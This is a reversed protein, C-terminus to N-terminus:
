FPGEAACTANVATVEYYWVQGMPPATGTTDVWQKNPTAADMDVINTGLLPWTAKPLAANSSRRVHYGTVQFTQNPDQFDLVTYNNVTLRVGYIFVPEDPAVCPGIRLMGASWSIGDVAQYPPGTAITQGTFPDADSDLTDDTGQNPLTYQYGSPLSFAIRHPAADLIEFRYAGQNDSFTATVTAGGSTQLYVPLRALPAEGADRLGDGDLDEWIQGGLFASLTVDNEAAGNLPMSFWRSAPVFPSVSPRYLLRVRWHYDGPELSSVAENLVHDAGEGHTFAASKGTVGGNFFLGRPKIEYALKVDAHGTPCRALAALRFAGPTRSRLGPAILAADDARRQQPRLAVGRNRIGYYLLARGMDSGGLDIYPAGVLIDAYGDGNVDGASAASYGLSTFAFNPEVSWTPTTVAGSASGLFLSARGEDVQGGDYYPAGVLVDSYGDGNVDGASAVSWGHYASIQGGGTNWIPSTWPGGASGPYISAVGADTQLPADFGPAGVIVDGYGDGDVDGAAAVSWGRNESNQSGTVIWVPFTALGDPSGLYVYAAGAQFLIFTDQFPAGVIVDSYGDGDVDGAGALSNGFRAGSWGSDATWAPTVALGASSGLYLFAMGEDSQPNDFLPAGVLVDSYGDGNVDGASAVSSGYWAAPQDSEATWAPTAGLGSPSGLYAYARGEDIQGHDYAYSGVVLDSYGDGNVDGAASVSFGFAAGPQNGEASWAPTAAIGAPSGLYLFARGEDAQGNDYGPSGIVIDSYGDGNVDGASAVSFGLNASGQTTDATWAATTSPGDVGGLYVFAAGADTKAPADYFASGILLDSFGDGNTDGATAVVGFYSGPQTGVQTWDALTPNTTSASGYYVFAAGVDILVTSDFYPAGVALDGYGDGNVDGAPGVSRGFAAGAQDSELFWYPGVLGTPGGFSVLVRGEDVQGNDFYPSGIAVEAYGDGNLDGATGVSWGFYSSAQFGQYIYGGTALSPSGFYIYARGEFSLSGTYNPAGIVYESFGDNNVDGATAVSLGFQSGVQEGLLTKAPTAGLGGSSGIYIFAAGVDLNAGDDYPAAGVIVDSYGDGNVDGATAVCTGFQGVAQDGEATWAPTLALGTPSGLYVFARGEQTQGNTFNEAGVIVDSYGDDNVDGATSVSNGFWAGAQDSEVTWAPAGAPGGATGLYVFARGEDIQGNDYLYAGLIVDSFGDGNVDGATSVSWGLDASAQGGDVSWVPSTALPDVSIPYVADQDDVVIRIGSVTEDAVGEMWAPLDRGTADRVALHAFRVVRSGGPIAFDVSQGDEAVLPMLTGTLALDLHLLSEHRARPGRRPAATRGPKPELRGRLAAEAPPSQLEFGQELGAPTNEYWERLDGRHYEVRAAAPAPTAKPVPWVERGRGYGVLTLEWQWSPADETRPVVRIGADTFFTRFGHARNPAQWAPSLGEPTDGEWTVEYERASIQKQAESLWGEAPANADAAVAPSPAAAVAPLAAALSAAILLGAATALMRGKGQCQRAHQRVAHLDIM